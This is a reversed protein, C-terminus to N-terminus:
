IRREGEWKNRRERSEREKVGLDLELMETKDGGVPAAPLREPMPSLLVTASRVVALVLAGVGLGVAVAWAAAWPFPPPAGPGVATGVCPREPLGGVGPHHRGGRRHLSSASGIM